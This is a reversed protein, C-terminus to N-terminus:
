RGGLKGIMGRLTEQLDAPMLVIKANDSAALKELSAIYKEGLLYM